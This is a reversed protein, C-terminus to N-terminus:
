FPKLSKMEFAKKREIESWIWDGLDLQLKMSHFHIDKLLTVVPSIAASRLSSSSIPPHHVTIVTLPPRDLGHLVSPHPHVHLTLTHPAEGIPGSTLPSCEQTRWLSVRDWQSHILYHRLFRQTLRKFTALLIVGSSNSHTLLLLFTSIFTLLIPLFSVLLASKEM